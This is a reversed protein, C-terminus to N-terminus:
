VLIPIIHIRLLRIFLLVIAIITASNKSAIGANLTRASSVRICFPPKSAGASEPPMGSPQNLSAHYSSPSVLIAETSFPVACMAENPLLPLSM